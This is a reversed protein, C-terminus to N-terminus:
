APAVQAVAAAVPSAAAALFRAITPYVEQEAHRGVILDGHGYDEQQGHARGLVLLERTPATLLAFYERTIVEPALHDVTGGIVLTPVKLARVAERYDVGELSRFADHAVWDQLQALVGRWMPAFVNALLLRQAEPTLNRLNASSDALRTELRGALPALPSVARSNFAGWPSLWQAAGLLWGTARPMRFFVPSGITCLAALHGALTSASAALGLLGGLSHGVWLVRTSGTRAAVLEVIAPVDLRVHDDFTVDHPGEHPPESDGAGRLDVTFCDFGAESLFQALNQPAQFEFIAHNNALGHCLVVPEEFRRTVAPRHWVALKWGDATAATLRTARPGALPYRREVTALWAAVLLALLVLGIVLVSTM